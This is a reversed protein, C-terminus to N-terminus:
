RTLPQRLRAVTLQNQNEARSRGSKASPKLDRLVQELTAVRDAMKLGVAEVAGVVRGQGFGDRVGKASVGRNRALSDIFMTYYEDVRKQIATLAEGTLPEHPNGETKYTGAHVLTTKVGEAAEAQSYDTHVALVGVSGIEGGPTVVIQDAASAIWYAASAMLSNAVAIIPKGGRASHIKESLESVGYVSGGPSDVDLVVAGISDDAMAKDFERGFWDTSMGGSAHTLLSMRQAVTGVLPIVAVNGNVNRVASKPGAQFDLEPVAQGYMRARIVDVIAQLKAPVIAWVTGFVAAAINQYQPYEIEHPKPDPM